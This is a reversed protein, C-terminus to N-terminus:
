AYTRQIDIKVVLDRGCEVAQWLAKVFCHIQPYGGVAVRQCGGFPCVGALEHGAQVFGCCEGADPVFLGLCRRVVGAGPKHLAGDQATVTGFDDLPLAFGYRACAKEQAARFEHVVLGPAVVHLAALEQLGGGGQGCGACGGAQKGQGLLVFVAVEDDKESAAVVGGADQDRDAALKIVFAAGVDGDWAVLGYFEGRVPAQVRREFVGDVGQDLFAFGAEDGKGAYGIYGAAVEISLVSPFEAKIAKGVLFALTLADEVPNGLLHFAGAGDGKGSGARECKGSLLWYGVHYQSTGHACRLILFDAFVNFAHVGFVRQFAGQFCAEHEPFFGFALDFRFLLVRKGQIGALNGRQHFVVEVKAEQINAAPIGV